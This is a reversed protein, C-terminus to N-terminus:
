EGEGNGSVDKSTYRWRGVWAKVRVALQNAFVLAQYCLCSACIWQSACALFCGSTEHYIRTIAEREQGQGHPKLAYQRSFKQKDVFYNFFLQLIETMAGAARMM